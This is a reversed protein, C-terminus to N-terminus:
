ATREALACLWAQEAWVRWVSRECGPQRPHNFRAAVLPPQNRRPYSGIGYLDHAPRFDAADAEIKCSPSGGRDWARASFILMVDPKLEDVTERLALWGREIQGASPKSSSTPLAEQVLNVFSVANWFFTREQLEQLGLAVERIHEFFTWGGEVMAQGVITRTLERDRCEAPDDSYHSDGVILLKLGDRVGSQYRDGQWPHFFRESM